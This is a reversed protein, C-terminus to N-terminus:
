ELFSFCWECLGNMFNGQYFWKEWLTAKGNKMNLTQTHTNALKKKPCPPLIVHRLKWIWGGRFTQVYHWHQGKMALVKVRKECKEEEWRKEIPHNISVSRSAGTIKVLSYNFYCINIKTFYLDRLSTSKIKRHNKKVRCRIHISSKGSEQVSISIKSHFNKLATSVWSSGSTELFDSKLDSVERVAVAPGLEESELPGLSSSRSHTNKKEFDKGFQIVNVYFKIMSFGIRHFSVYVYCLFRM